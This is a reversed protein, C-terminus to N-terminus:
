AVMMSMVRGVRDTSTCYFKYTGAKLTYVLTHGSVGEVEMVGAGHFMETVYNGNEDVLVFKSINGRDTSTVKVYFTSDQTVTFEIYSNEGEETTQM